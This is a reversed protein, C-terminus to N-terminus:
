RPAYPNRTVCVTVKFRKNPDGNSPNNDNTGLWINGIGPTGEGNSDVKGATAQASTGVYFWDSAPTQSSTLKFGAQTRDRGLTNGEGFRAILAFPSRDTIPYGLEGDKPRDWTYWGRADYDGTAFVGSWNTGTAQFRVIDGPAVKIGTNRPHEGPGDWVDFGPSKLTWRSTSPDFVNVPAPYCVEKVDLRIVEPSAMTLMQAIVVQYPGAATRSGVYRMTVGIADGPNNQPDFREGKVIAGRFATAIADASAGTVVPLSQDSRAGVSLFDIRMNKVSDKYAAEGEGKFGSYAAKVSAELGLRSMNGTFRVLMTRGYKVESVYVAPNGTQAWRQVDALTVSPAFFPADGATPEFVLTYFVQTFKGVITNENYGSNLKADLSAKVGSGEYAVGLKVMAERVTEASAFSMLMTGISGSPALRALLARRGDEVTTASVVPLDLSQSGATSNLFNTTLRIRGPSRALGGIPSFNNNNISAGQVLSGAWIADPYTKLLALEAQENVLEAGVQQTGTVGEPLGPITVATGAKPTIMALPPIQDLYDRIQAANSSGPAGAPKVTFIRPKLQASAVIPAALLLASPVLKMMRLLTRTCM